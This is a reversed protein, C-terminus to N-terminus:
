PLFPRHFRIWNKLIDPADFVFQRPFRPIIDAAQTFFGGSEYRTM